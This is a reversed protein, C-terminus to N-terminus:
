KNLGVIIHDGNKSQNANNVISNIKQIEEETFFEYVLERTVKDYPIGHQYFFSVFIQSVDSNYELHNIKLGCLNVLYKLSKISHLFIHRPADLQYWHAEFMDFAINPFVPISMLIIGDDTILRRASDLVEKPNTVHEFSDAMRIFDYTGNGDMDTIECKKIHVRDGYNIDNGIFPDCGYANCCGEKAKFVLWEGAGCGVDLIKRKDIIPSNFDIGSADDSKMSYYGNGYYDGINKPVETIQMCVCNPCVFYEFEDKTGKMMERVLYSQFLGKHGCIRCEHERLGLNRNRTDKELEM